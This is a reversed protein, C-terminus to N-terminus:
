ALRGGLAVLERLADGLLSIDATTNFVGPSVRVTGAPFTGLTRHAAPSCHLGVRVVIGYAEALFTAVEAPDLPPLTFSVVAVRRPPDHPGFVRAGPVRALESLLADALAEEVSRAWGPGAEAERAALFRVGEALAIIGPTNPTGAEYRDPLTSPQREGTSSGGTGGERLPEPEAGPAVYLFGTGQPGLLGKHGPAALLDIGAEAVRLPLVGATQAADVLLLPRRSGMRRLGEAVEEVPQLAGCVNSAHTLAVLRTGPRVRSLIREAPLWGDPDAPVQEWLAGGAAARALPRALSNHDMSTSLAHDGPGLLGLVALNLAETANATYAVRSSDPAGIFAALEERAAFIARDGDPVSSRRPSCLPDSVARAMAEAVGGPKPWSTAANNLYVVPRTM